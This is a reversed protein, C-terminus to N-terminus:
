APIWCSWSRPVTTIRPPPDATRTPKRKRTSFSLTGATLRGIFYRPRQPRDNSRCASRTRSPSRAAVGPTHPPSINKATILWRQRRYRSGDWMGPLLTICAAVQAGDLNNPASIFEILYSEKVDDDVKAANMNTFNKHILSELGEKKYRNFRDRLRRENAPLTHPYRTRDLDQVGEAIEKWNHTVRGSSRSRKFATKDSLLRGIAELVIANAYYEARTEKPLRRGDPLLYDEEFYRSIEADHVIRSEVQSVKAAERPDCGLVEKVMPKFREPISDYSVLAPTGRCGRRAIYIQNSDRLHRYQRVTMVGNDVLWRAEM